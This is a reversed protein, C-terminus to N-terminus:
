LVLGRFDGKFFGIEFYVLKWSGSGIVDQLMFSEIDGSYFQLVEVIIVIGFM